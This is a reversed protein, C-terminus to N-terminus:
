TNLFADPGDVEVIEEGAASNLQAIWSMAQAQSPLSLKSALAELLDSTAMEDSDGFIGMVISVMDESEMAEGEDKEVTEDSIDSSKGGDEEGLGIRADTGLVIEEDSGTKLAENLISHVDSTSAITSALRDEDISFGVEGDDRVIHHSGAHYDYLVMAKDLGAKSYLEELAAMVDHPIVNAFMDNVLSFILDQVHSIEVNKLCIKIGHTSLNLSFTAYRLSYFLLRQVSPIGTATWPPNYTSSFKMLDASGLSDPCRYVFWAFIYSLCSPENWSGPLTIHFSGSDGGFVPALCRRGNRNDHGVGRKFLVVRDNETIRWTNSVIGEVTEPLMAQWGYAAATTAIMQQSTATLVGKATYSLGCGYRRHFDDDFVQLSAFTATKKGALFAELACKGPSLALLADLAVEEIGRKSNSTLVSECADLEKRCTVVMDAIKKLPVGMEEPDKAVKSTIEFAHGRRLGISSPYYIPREVKGVRRAVKAERETKVNSVRELLLKEFAPEYLSDRDIGLMAINPSRLLRGKGASAILKVPVSMKHSKLRSILMYSMADSNENADLVKARDLDLDDLGFLAHIKKENFTDFVSGDYLLMMAIYHCVSRSSDGFCEMLRLLESIISQKEEDSVEDPKTSDLLLRRELGYLYLFVFGIDEARTRDSALFELYGRRQEPTLYQYCPYTGLVEMGESSQAVPFMPSLLSPESVRPEVMSSMNAGAYFMGGRVAVGGISIGSKWHWKAPITKSKLKRNQRARQEEELRLREERAAKRAAMRAEHAKNRM